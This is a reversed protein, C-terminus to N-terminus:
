RSPRVIVSGAQDDWYLRDKNAKYWARLRKLDEKTEENPMLGFPTGVGRVSVGATDYFFRCADMMEGESSIGIVAWRLVSYHKEWEAVAREHGKLHSLDKAGCAFLLAILIGAFFMLARKGQAVGGGGNIFGSLAVMLGSLRLRSM